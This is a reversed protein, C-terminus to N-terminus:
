CFRTDEAIDRPSLHSHFDYLPASEAYTRYLTRASESELLFDGTIFRHNLHQPM